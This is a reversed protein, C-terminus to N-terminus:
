VDTKLNFNPVEWTVVNKFESITVLKYNLPLVDHFAFSMHLDGVPVPGRLDPFLYDCALPTFDVCMVHCYRFWDEEKIAMKHLYGPTTFAGRLIDYAETNNEALEKVQDESLHKILRGEMMNKPVKNFTVKDERPWYFDGYKIGFKAYCPFRYVYPNKRPDDAFLYESPMIFVYIRSPVTGIIARQMEFENSSPLSDYKLERRIIPIKMSQDRLIQNTKDNIYKNDCRILHDEFWADHIKIHPVNEKACTFCNRPDNLIIRIQFPTSFPILKYEQELMPHLIDTCFVHEASGLLKKCYRENYAAQESILVVDAAAGNDETVSPQTEPTMPVGKTANNLANTRGEKPTLPADFPIDWDTRMEEHKVRDEPLTMMKVIRAIHDYYEQRIVQGNVVFEVRKIYNTLFNDRLFAHSTGM